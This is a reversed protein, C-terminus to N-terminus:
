RAERYWLGAFSGVLLALGLLGGLLPLQEVSKLVTAESRRLGM